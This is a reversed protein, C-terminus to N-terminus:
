DNTRDKLEKKLAKKFMEVELSGKISLAEITAEFPADSYSHIKCLALSIAYISTNYPIGKKILYEIIADAIKYAESSFKEFDKETM